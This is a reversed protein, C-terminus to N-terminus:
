YEDLSLFHFRVSRNLARGEETENPSVPVAEGYGEGAWIKQELKEHQVIRSPDIGEDYILYYIVARARRNALGINYRESGTSDTHGQVELRLDNCDSLRLFHTMSQLSAIMKPTLTFTGIDFLLPSFEKPCYIPPGPPGIYYFLADELEVLSDEKPIPTANIIKESTTIPARACSSTLLLLCASLSCCIKSCNFINLM